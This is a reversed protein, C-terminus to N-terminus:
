NVNKLTDFVNKFTPREHPDQQWCKQILDKIEEDKSEPFSPRESKLVKAQIEELNHKGWPKTEFWIYYAIMAFAYVDIKKLFGEPHAFKFSTLLM